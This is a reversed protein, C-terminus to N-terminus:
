NDRLRGSERDADKHKVTARKPSIVPSTTLAAGIDLASRSVDPAIHGYVDATIAIGSHGLIQVRREAPRARFADRLCRLAPAHLQTNSLVQADEELAQAVQQQEDPPLVTSSTAMSTFILSLSALM